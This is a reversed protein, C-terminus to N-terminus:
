QILRLLLNEIYDNWLSKPNKKIYLSFVQNGKISYNKLKAKLTNKYLKKKKNYRHPPTKKGKLV